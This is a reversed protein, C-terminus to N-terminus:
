NFIQQPAVQGQSVTSSQVILTFNKNLEAM